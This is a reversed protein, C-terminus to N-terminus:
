LVVCWAGEDLRGRALLHHEASISEPCGALSIRYFGNAATVCVTTNIAFGSSYEVMPFVKSNGIDRAIGVTFDLTVVSTVVLMRHGCPTTSLRSLMHADANKETLFSGTVYMPKGTHVTVSQLLTASQLVQRVKYYRDCKAIVSTASQLLIATASQLVMKDCKTIFLATASQLAVRDCKTSFFQLQENLLSSHQSTSIDTALHCVRPVRVRLRVWVRYEFQYDFEFWRLWGSFEVSSSFTAMQETRFRFLFSAPGNEGVFSLPEM